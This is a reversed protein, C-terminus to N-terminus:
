WIPGPCVRPFATCRSARPGPWGGSSQLNIRRTTTGCWICPRTRPAQSTWLPRRIIPNGRRPSRVHAEVAMASKPTRRGFRGWPSASPKRGPASPVLRRRPALPGHFRQIVLHFPWCLEPTAAWTPRNCARIRSVDAPSGIRLGPHASTASPVGSRTDFRGVRAASALGCRGRRWQRPFM